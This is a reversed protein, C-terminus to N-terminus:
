RARATISRYLPPLALLSWAVELLIFGWRHDLIAIWALLGSGVANLANYLTSDISMRKLQAGVYGVLLM